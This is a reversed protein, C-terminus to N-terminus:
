SRDVSNSRLVEKVEDIPLQLAKAIGQPSMPPKGDGGKRMAVIQAEHAYASVEPLPAVPMAEPPGAAIGGNWVEPHGREIVSLAKDRHRRMGGSMHRIARTLVYKKLPSEWGPEVADNMDRMQGRTIDAYCLEICLRPDAEQQYIVKKELQVPHTSTRDQGRVAELPTDAGFTVGDYRKQESIVNTVRSVVCAVLKFSMSPQEQVLRKEFEDLMYGVNGHFLARAQKGRVTGAESILLKHYRLEYIVRESSSSGETEDYYPGLKLLEARPMTFMRSGLEKAVIEYMDSPGTISAPDKLEDLQPLPPVLSM